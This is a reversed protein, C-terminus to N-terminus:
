LIKMVAFVRVVLLRVVEVAVDTVCMERDHELVLRVRAGRGLDLERGLLEGAGYAELGVADGGLDHGVGDVM